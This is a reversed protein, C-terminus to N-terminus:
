ANAKKGLLVKRLQKNKAFYDAVKGSVVEVLKKDCPKEVEEDSEGEKDSKVITM